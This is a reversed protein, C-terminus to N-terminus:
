GICQISNTGSILIGIIWKAGQAVRLLAVFLVLLAGQFCVLKFGNSGSIEYILLFNIVYM